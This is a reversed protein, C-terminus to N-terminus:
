QMLFGFISSRQSLPMSSPPIKDKKGRELIWEKHMGKGGMRSQREMERCEKSSNKLLINHQITLRM